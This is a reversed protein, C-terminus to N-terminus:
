NNKTIQMKEQLDKTKKMLQKVKESREQIKEKLDNERQTMAEIKDILNNNKQELNAVKDLLNEERKLLTEIKEKRNNIYEKYNNNSDILNREILFFAEEEAKLLDKDIKIINSYSVDNVPVCVIGLWKGMFEVKIVHYDTEIQEYLNAFYYTRKHDWYDNIGFPVTIILQGESKICEGIKKIFVELQSENIHELVEAVIVTDFKIEKFDYDIFDGVELMVNNQVNKSEELIKEKAFDISEQLIDLALVQKNERGLIIPVISQSCGVDLIKNGKVQNCIWQIRERTKLTLESNDDSTYVEYVKDYDKKMAFVEKAM